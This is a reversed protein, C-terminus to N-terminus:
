AQCRPRPVAAADGGANGSTFVSSATPSRARASSRPSPQSGGSSTEPSRRLLIDVRQDVDDHPDGRHRLVMRGDDLHVAVPHHHHWAADHPHISTHSDASAEESRKLTHRDARRGCSGRGLNPVIDPQQDHSSRSVREPHAPWPSPAVGGHCAPLSGADAPMPIRSHIAARRRTPGPLLAAAKSVRISAGRTGPDAARAASFRRRLSPKLRTGRRLAEEENRPGLAGQDPTFQLLARRHPV